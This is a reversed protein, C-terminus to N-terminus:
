RTARCSEEAQRLAELFGIPDAGLPPAKFGGFIAHGAQLWFCDVIPFGAEKLWELQDMLPSPRDGPDPFRYYNWAEETFRDFLEENTRSREEAARDWCTAFLEGAQPLLPEVLDAILLSGRPSTARFVMKFLDRKQQGSLHHLCLSSVVVDASDLYHYWDNDALEFSQLSVRSGFTKLREEAHSRMSASGDLATLSAGSFCSLFAHSLAGPGSGIEVARFTDRRGFPLLTLVTAIQEERAPVAISSIQRYLLSDDENWAGKSPDPSGKM